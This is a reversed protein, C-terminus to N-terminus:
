PFQNLLYVKTLGYFVTYFSSKLDNREQESKLNEKSSIFHTHLFHTFNEKM